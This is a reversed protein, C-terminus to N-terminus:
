SNEEIMKEKYNLLIDVVEEARGRKPSLGMLKEEIQILNEIIDKGDKTRLLTSFINPLYSYYEDRAYAQDSIGIPDWLYHLVEDVRQYLEYEHPKLKNKM